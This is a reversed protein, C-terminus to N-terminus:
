EIAIVEGDKALVDGIFGDVEDVKVWREVGVAVVVDEEFVFGAVLGSGLYIGKFIGPMPVDVGFGDVLFEGGGVMDRGLDGVHDGCQAGEDSGVLHHCVEGVHGDTEDFKVADEFGSAGEVEM